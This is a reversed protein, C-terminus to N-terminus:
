VMESPEGRMFREVVPRLDGCARGPPGRLAIIRNEICILFNCALRVLDSIQPNFNKYYEHRSQLALM